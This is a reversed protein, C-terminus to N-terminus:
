FSQQAERIFLLFGQPSSISIDILQESYNMAYIGFDGNHLQAYPRDGNKDSIKLVIAIVLSVLVLATLVLAAVRLVKKFRKNKM